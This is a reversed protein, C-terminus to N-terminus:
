GLQESAGSHCQHKPSLSLNRWVWSHGYHWCLLRLHVVMHGQTRTNPPTPPLGPRQMMAKTIECMLPFFVLSSPPPHQNSCTCALYWQGIFTRYFQSYKIKQFCSNQLHYVPRSALKMKREWVGDPVDDCCPDVCAGKTKTSILCRDCSEDLIDFCSGCQNSCCCYCFLIVVFLVFAATALYVAQVHM